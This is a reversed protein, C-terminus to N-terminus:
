QTEWNQAHRQRFEDIHKRAAQLRQEVIGDSHNGLEVVQRELEKLRAGLKKDDDPADEGSLEALASDIHVLQEHITADDTHESASQIAERAFRLSSAM